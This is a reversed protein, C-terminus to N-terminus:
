ATRAMACSHSGSGTGIGSAAVEIAEVSGARVPTSGNAVNAGLQGSGNLGWCYVQFLTTVGCAHGYGASITQFVQGGSVQVPTSSATQTGNGLQGASNGGWCKATGNALAACSHTGLTVSQFTQGGM